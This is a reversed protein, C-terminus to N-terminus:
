EGAEANAVDALMEIQERSGFVGGVHDQNVHKRILDATVNLGGAQRDAVFWFPWDDTRDSASRPFHRPDPM